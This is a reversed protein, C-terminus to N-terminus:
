RLAVRLDGTALTAGRVEWASGSREVQLRAEAPGREGSVDATVLGNTATRIAGVRVEGGLADRV